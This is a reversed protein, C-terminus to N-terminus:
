RRERVTRTPLRVTFHSGSGIRSEVSVAGGYAKAISEVISLGLGSGSEKTTFFSDFVKPLDKESIGKGTDVIGLEIFGDDSFDTRVTIRGLSEIAECANLLLNSVMTRLQTRDILLPPLHRRYAKAVVIRRSTIENKLDELAEDLVRNVNVRDIKGGALKAYGLLDMIIKDSRQVETAIIQVQRRLKDDLQGENRRLIYAANNMIALPNKLEHAISTAMMAALNVREQDESMARLRVRVQANAGWCGAGAMVLIVIRLIIMRQEAEGVSWYTAVWYFAASLGTMLGLTLADPFLLVAHVLVFLYLWFLSAERSPLVGILMSVFLIDIIVLFFATTKIFGYSSIRRGLFFLCFWFIANGVTYLVLQIYFFLVSRVFQVQGPGEGIDGLLPGIGLGVIAFAFAIVALKILLVVREVAIARQLYERVDELTHETAM